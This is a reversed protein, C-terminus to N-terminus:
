GDLEVMLNGSISVRDEDCNYFPYVTHGLGSPFFLMTGEVKPEMKYVYSIQKGLIDSYVIEFNSISNSNVGSAIHLKKQEEFKTPIKMWIVFSFVGTHTHIPNFETQKQFNVWLDELVYKVKKKSPFNYLPDEFEEVYFETTKILVNKFFWDDKDSLRYSHHINGALKPRMSEGEIEIANWLFKLADPKLKQQVWGLNSPHIAKMM